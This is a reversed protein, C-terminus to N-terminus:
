EGPGVGTSEVLGLATPGDHLLAAADALDLGDPVEAADEERVAALEAYGGGAYGSGGGTRAVVRRGLWRPSVGDGVAVVRGAVGDGPVFPPVIGFFEQGWGARLQADLFLVDAVGVDIVVQGPGAVPEPLDIAALVRPGGFREAVIARM